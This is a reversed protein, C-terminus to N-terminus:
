GSRRRTSLDYVGLLLPQAAALAREVGGERPSLLLEGGVQQEPERRQDVLESSPRILFRLAPEPAKLSM